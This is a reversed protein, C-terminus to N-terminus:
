SKFICLFESQVFGEVRCTFAGLVYSDYFHRVLFTWMCFMAILADAFALNSLYFNVTTRMSRNLLVTLVVGWNGVLSAIVTVVYIVVCLLGMKEHPDTEGFEYYSLNYVYHSTQEPIVCDSWNVEPQPAEM